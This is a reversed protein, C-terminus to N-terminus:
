NTRRLNEVPNFIVGHDRPKYGALAGRAAEGPCPFTCACNNASPLLLSDVPLV